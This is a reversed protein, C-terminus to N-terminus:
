ILNFNELLIIPIDMEQAKKIKSSTNDIHKIIVKTTNKSITNGVRGGESEIKLKLEENRFGSFVIVENNYKNGILKKKNSVKQITIKDHIKLFEKFNELNEIFKNTSLKSFSDIEIIKEYLNNNINLVNPYKDTILKLKKEGLGSGFMNSANMVKSLEVEKINSNINNYIKIAMTNKIGEIQLFDEKKANIIKKITNLDSNIFKKVLGININPINMKTIFHLINKSLLEKNNKFNNILLHVGTSNWHHEIDPIKGTKSCKLINHVKPIVDGSRIVEIISGSNLNNDKIYKANHGTVKSITVGGVKVPKIILRPILKGDKSVNYEVELVETKVIQNDFDMKFAFANKPNRVKPITYEQNDYVVIGDIEYKSNKKRDKLYEVLQEMKLTQKKTNFVSNIKLEKMIKFQEEPTLDQDIIQYAVFEIYKSQSQDIKKSNLYGAVINRPSTEFQNHYKKPIILEGRIMLESPLKLKLEKIYNTIDTGYEGNGRTYLKDQYFLASVGDLKDSLIKTGPHKIVFRNISKEDKFKDLSPMRSPLKVKNKNLIPAGVNDFYKNNPDKNRLYDELSDFVYDPIIIDKKSKSNYYVDKLYNLTEVLKKTSVKSAYELYDNDIDELNIDM